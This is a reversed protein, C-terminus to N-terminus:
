KIAVFVGYKVRGQHLADRMLHLQKVFKLATFGGDRLIQWWQYSKLLDIGIDWSKLVHSSWDERHLLKFGHAQLIRAYFEMTPMYPLDFAQCLRRYALAAKGDYEERDSCWTALMLHGGPKLVRSAQQIFLPKDFFQECSELSWVVDFDQDAFSQLSLADEVKFYINQIAETKAQQQAFKIQEVSLSVGYVTAHYKKALYFSSGGLGCGVDLIKDNSNILVLQLLKEILNEQAQLPSLTMAPEYYGHHIHPGWLRLWGLSLKNWYAAVRKTVKIRDNLVPSDTKIKM